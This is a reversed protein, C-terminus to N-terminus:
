RTIRTLKMMESAARAGILLSSEPPNEAKENKRKKEKRKTARRQKRKQKLKAREDKLIIRLQAERKSQILVKMKGKENQIRNDQILILESLEFPAQREERVLM